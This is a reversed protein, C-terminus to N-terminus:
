ERPREEPPDFLEELTEEEPDPQPRGSDTAAAV